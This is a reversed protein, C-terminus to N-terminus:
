ANLLRRAIARVDALLAAPPQDLDLAHQHITIGTNRSRHAGHPANGKAYILHGESLNLATRYALMQYLDADPFGGPKEAKYKADAVASPLGNEDYAVFDPIMRIRNRDDLHHSAQLVRHGAAGGLADRLAVTVFDEFIRALDFLFGRVAIEGPRDEVSAGHLVLDALRM